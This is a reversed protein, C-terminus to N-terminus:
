YVAIDQRFRPLPVVVLSCFMPYGLRGALPFTDSSNTAIRIPPHPIQMPKSHVAVSCLAVSRFVRIEDM